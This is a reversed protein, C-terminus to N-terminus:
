FHNKEADKINEEILKAIEVSDYKNSAALNKALNKQRQISHNQSLKWKGEIKTIEIEFAVLANLLGSVYQQEFQVAWPNPLSSEYFHVTDEIIRKTKEKDEIMKFTGYVHVAVYNWTPVTNPEGYWTPSIYAHPGSFVVLVEKDNLDRWHPNAKAMHSFLSGNGGINENMIFPLHTAFPGNGNDSFMIGFSHNKIFNLLKTKDSEEFAKPIYM